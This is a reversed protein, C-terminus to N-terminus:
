RGVTENGVQTTTSGGDIRELSGSADFVPRGLYSVSETAYVDTDDYDGDNNLDINRGPYKENLERESLTEVVTSSTSNYTTTTTGTVRGPEYQQGIEDANQRVRGQMGRKIYHQMALLAAIVCMIILAYELSGQGKIKRSASAGPRFVQRPQLTM